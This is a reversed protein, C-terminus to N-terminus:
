EDSHYGKMGVLLQHFPCPLPQSAAAMNGTASGSASIGEPRDSNERELGVGEQYMQM